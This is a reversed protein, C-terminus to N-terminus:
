TQTNRRKCAKATQADAPWCGFLDHERKGEAIARASWPVAAVVSGSQHRCTRSQEVNRPSEAPGNLPTARQSPLLFRM